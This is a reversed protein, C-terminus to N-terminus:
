EVDRGSADGDRDRLAITGPAMRYGIGPVTVLVLPVPPDEELKKRLRAVHNDLTRTEGAHGVGWLARLVDARPVAEGARAHLYRVAAGTEENFDGLVLDPDGDFCELHSELEDRRIPGTTFYGLLLRGDGDLPPHLHVHVVDLEGIPSSVTVCSAPFGSARTPTREEQHAIPYRSLLTMGGERQAELASVHPYRDGLEPQFLADWAENTEQLFVVDADAEVIARVTEESPREFNVNYTTVWIADPEPTGRVDGGPPLEECGSGVLAV